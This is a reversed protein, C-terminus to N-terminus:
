PNLLHQKSYSALCLYGGGGVVRLFIKTPLLWSLVTKVSKIALRVLRGKLLTGPPVPPFSDEAHYSYLTEFVPTLGLSRIFYHVDNADFERLHGNSHTSGPYEKPLLYNDLLSAEIPLKILFFRTFPALEAILARCDPVHELLDILLIADFGEDVQASLFAVNDRFDLAPLKEYRIAQSNCRKRALKIATESFDVGLASHICDARLQKLRLLVAGYGCGFDLLHHLDDILPGPILKVITEAKREASRIDFDIGESSKSSWERYFDALDFHTQNQKEM